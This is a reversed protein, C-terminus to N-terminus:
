DRLGENVKGSMGSRQRLRSVMRKLPERPDDEVVASIEAAQLTTQGSAQTSTMSRTMIRRIQTITTTTMRGLLRRTLVATTGM